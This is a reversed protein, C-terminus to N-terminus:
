KAYYIRISEELSPDNRVDIAYRVLDVLGDNNMDSLLGIYGGFEDKLLNEPDYNM